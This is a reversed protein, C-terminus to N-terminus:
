VQSKNYHNSRERCKIIIIVYLTGYKFIIIKAYTNVWVEM